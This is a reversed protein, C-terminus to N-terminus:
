NANNRDRLLQISVKFEELTCDTRFHHQWANVISDHWGICDEEVAVRSEILACLNDYFMRRSKKDHPQQALYQHLEKM